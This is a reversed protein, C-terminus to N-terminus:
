WLPETHSVNPSDVTETNSLSYVDKFVYIFISQNMSVCVRSWCVQQNQIPISGASDKCVQMQAVTNNNRMSSIM